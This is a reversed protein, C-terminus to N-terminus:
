NKNRIVYLVLMIYRTVVGVAIAVVISSAIVEEM